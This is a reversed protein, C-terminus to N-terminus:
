SIKNFHESAVCRSISDEKLVEGVWEGYALTNQAFVMFNCNDSSELYVISDSHYRM